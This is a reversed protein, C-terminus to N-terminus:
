TIVYIPGSTYSVQVSGDVQRETCRLLFVFYIHKSAYRLRFTTSIFANYM